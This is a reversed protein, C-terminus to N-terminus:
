RSPEFANKNQSQWDSSAIYSNHQFKSFNTIAHIKHKNYEIRSVEMTCNGSRRSQTFSMISCGKKDGTAMRETDELISVKECVKQQM